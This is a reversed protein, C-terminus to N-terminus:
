GKVRLLLWSQLKINVFEIEIWVRIKIFSDVISWIKYISNFKDSVVIYFGRNSYMGPAIFNFDFNM